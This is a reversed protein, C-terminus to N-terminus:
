IDDALIATSPMEENTYSAPLSSMTNGVRLLCSM